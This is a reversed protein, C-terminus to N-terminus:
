RQSSSPISLSSRYKAITRRACQIGKKQLERLLTLDSLPKEKDERAILAQILEKVSESSVENGRHFFLSLPFVGSPSSLWKSSIARSVTSEHLGVQQAVERCTLPVLLARDEGAFFSLQKQLLVKGIKELTQKRQMCVRSLWHARRKKESLYQKAEQGMEKGYLSNIRFSPILEENVSIRWRNDVHTILLDPIIPPAFSISFKQAPILNLSVIEERILRRCSRIDMGLFKALHCYNESIFDSFHNALIEYAVGAQKGQNELQFLLYDRHDFSGVGLPDLNQIKKKVILFKEQLSPEIEEQRISCFGSADLSSIMRDALSREEADEFGILLQSQLYEYLSLPAVAEIYGPTLSQDGKSGVPKREQIELLPNGEIEQTLFEGLEELPLQLVYLAQQMAHNMVLQQKTSLTLDLSMNM